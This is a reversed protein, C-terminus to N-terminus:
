IIPSIIYSLFFFDISKLNDEYVENSRIYANTQAEEQADKVGSRFEYDELAQKDKLTRVEEEQAVNNVWNDLDLQYQQDLIANARGRAKKYKGM